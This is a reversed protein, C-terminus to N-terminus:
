LITNTEPACCLSDAEYKCIDEAGQVERWSGGIYYKLCILILEGFECHVCGLKLYLSNPSSTGVQGLAFRLSPM